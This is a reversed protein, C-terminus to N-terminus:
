EGLERVVCNVSLQKTPSDLDWVLGLLMYQLYGSRKWGGPSRNQLPIHRRLADRAVNGENGALCVIGRYFIRISLLQNDVVAHAEHLHDIRCSLTRAAGEVVRVGM